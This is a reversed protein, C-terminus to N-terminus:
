NLRSSSLHVEIREFNDIYTQMTTNGNYESFRDNVFFVRATLGKPLYLITNMVRGISAPPPMDTPSATGVQLPATWRGKEGVFVVNACPRTVTQNDSLIDYDEYRCDSGSGVRQTVIKYAGAQVSDNLGTSCAGWSEVGGRCHIDAGAAVPESAFTDVAALSFYANDSPSPPTLLVNSPYDPGSSPRIAALPVFGVYYLRNDALGYALGAVQPSSALSPQADPVEFMKETVMDGSIQLTKSNEDFGRVDDFVLYYATKGDPSRMERPSPRPLDVGDLKFSTRNFESTTVNDVRGHTALVVTTVPLELTKGKQGVTGSSVVSLALTDNSLTALSLERQSHVTPQRGGLYM